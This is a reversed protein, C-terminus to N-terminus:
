PSPKVPINFRVPSGDLPKGDRLRQATVSVFVREVGNGLVLLSRTSNGATKTTDVAMTSDPRLPGGGPFTLIASGNLGAPQLSDVRYRVIIGNVPVTVGRLGTVTVSLAKPTLVSIATDGSADNPGSITSPEPVIQLTAV